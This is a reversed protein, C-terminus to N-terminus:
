EHRSVPDMKKPVVQIYIMGGAPTDTGYRSALAEDVLNVAARAGASSASPAARRLSTRPRVLPMAAKAIEALRGKRAASELRRAATSVGEIKDSALLARVREYASLVDAVDSNSPPFKAGATPASWAHSRNTLSPSAVMTLMAVLSVSALSPYRTMPNRETVPPAGPKGRRRSTRTRALVAEVLGARELHASEAFLVRGDDAVAGVAAIRRSEGAPRASGVRELETLM